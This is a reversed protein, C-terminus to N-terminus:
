HCPFAVSHRTDHAANHLVDGSGQAFGVAYILAIGAIAMLLAAVTRTTIGAFGQFRDLAQISM